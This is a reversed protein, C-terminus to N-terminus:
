FPDALWMAWAGGGLLVLVILVGHIAFEVNRQERFHEVMDKGLYAAIALTAFGIALATWVM